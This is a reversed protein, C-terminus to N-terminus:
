SNLEPGQKEKKAQKKAKQGKVEQALGCCCLFLNLDTLYDEDSDGFQNNAEIEEKIDECWAKLKESPNKLSGELDFFLRKLYVDIGGRLASYDDDFTRSELYESMEICDDVELLSHFYRAFTYAFPERDWPFERYDEYYWQLAHAMEYILLRIKREEGADYIGIWKKGPEVKIRGKLAKKDDRKTIVEFGLFNCVSKLNRYIRRQYAQHQKTKEETM